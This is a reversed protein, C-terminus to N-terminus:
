EQLFLIKLSTLPQIRTFNKYNCTYITSCYQEAIATHLCDNFDKFGVIKALETARSFEVAGYSVPSSKALSLLRSSIFPGAQNLKALVFGTEQLSLFSIVFENALLTEKIIENAKVHLNLIQNVLSHVLVDTDFYIM